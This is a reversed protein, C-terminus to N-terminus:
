PLTRWLEHVAEAAGELPVSRRERGRRLQVELEGAALTRKGVTVRLPAGLLEADAFKEGPGADRDDYLVDLGTAKLEEYLRDAFAREESEGRSIVVLEADFPALARPWAIGADDAYQEVAAAVIRAPGIGYCGMTVLQQAGSEDLFSAGLASSYRTGLKFINGVEIAKEIRIPHGGVTDGPEVARVDAREFPFDRGPEVGRLHHDARNAGTVYGGDGVADDLVIPANAGVPGIFGAPGIKRAFEDATAPRVQTGLANRLKVENVRHDGRVLVLVLGRGEAIVPYAKLVAGPAVGLRRAVDDVTTLGPTHVEEPQSLPAPLEAPQPDASAVELNAAYGPALAVEDEGAACPAMYEHAATGGMMGVDSEVRYWELGTREFIRDYAVIHKAYSEELGAEDRDFSYSDKMRFERTRLVGARPRPEDREKVQIQYLIQPLDRYSRVVQAVHTTVIEEHTMALVMETGKRDELKFIEDIEIRGTRRWPEAPNLLPMLMEQGGIADMEERIIQEVRRHVRWGAPLYTWLGAGLQRILGARVMLQHSIAEADAPAQKETPLLYSSLRTM